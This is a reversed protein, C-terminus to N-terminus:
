LAGIAVAFCSLLSAHAVLRLGAGPGKLRLGLRPSDPASLQGWIPCGGGAGGVPWPRLLGTLERAAQGRARPNWPAKQYHNGPEKSAAERLGQGPKMDGTDRRSGQTERKETVRSRVSFKGKGLDQGQTQLGSEWDRGTGWTGNGVKACGLGM